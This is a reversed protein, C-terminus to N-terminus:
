ARGLQFTESFLLSCIDLYRTVNCVYMRVYTCVYMCVYPPWSIPRGAALGVLCSSLNIACLFIWFWRILGLWNAIWDKWIMDNYFVNFFGCALLDSPLHQNLGWCSVSLNLLTYKIYNAFITLGRKIMKTWNVFGTRDM